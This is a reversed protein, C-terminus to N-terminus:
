LHVASPVAAAPLTLGTNTPARAYLHAYSYTRIRTCTYLYMHMPAHAHMPLVAAFRCASVVARLDGKSLVAFLEKRTSVRKRLLRKVRLSWDADWDLVRKCALLTFISVVACFSANGVAFAMLVLYIEALVPAPWASFDFASLDALVFGSLFTAVVSFQEIGDLIALEPLECYTAFKVLDYSDEDQPDVQQRGLIVDDSLSEVRHKFPPFIEASSAERREDDALIRNDVRRQGDARLGRVEEVLAAVGSAVAELKSVTDTHYLPEVHRPPRQARPAPLAASSPM